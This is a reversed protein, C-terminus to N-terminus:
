KPLRKPMPEKFGDRKAQERVAIDLATSATVGLSDAYRKLWELWSPDGKLTILSKQPERDGARKKAMGMAEAVDDELCGLPM